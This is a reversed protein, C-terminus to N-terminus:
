ANLYKKNFNHESQFKEDVANNHKVSSETRVGEVAERHHLGFTALARQFGFNVNEADLKVGTLYDRLYNEEDSSLISMDLNSGQAVVSFQVRYERSPHELIFWTKALTTVTVGSSPHNLRGVISTLANQAEKSLLEWEKNSREIDKAREGHHLDKNNGM